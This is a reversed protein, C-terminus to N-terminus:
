LAHCMLFGPPQSANFLELIGSSMVGLRVLLEEVPLSAVVLLEKEAQAARNTAIISKGAFCTHSYPFVAYFLLSVPGPQLHREAPSVRRDIVSDRVV